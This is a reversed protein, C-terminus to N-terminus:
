GPITLRRGETLLRWTAIDGLMIDAARHAFRQLAAANRPASEWEKIMGTLRDAKQRSRNAVGEFDLIVRIGYSATAIAPLGATIATLGYKMEAALDPMALRLLLWGSAALLVMLFLFEGFREIRHSALHLRRANSDSWHAQNRLEFLLPAAASEPDSLDVSQLPSTRSFAEAYWGALDTQDSSEISRGIGVKNLLSCVRLLEAVERAELWREHWKKRGAAWVNYLLLLITIVEALVFLWKWQDALLSIAALVVALAAFSFNVTVASRFAQAAQVASQDWWVFAEHLANNTSQEQDNSEIKAGEIEQVPKVGAFKLLLPYVNHNVPSPAAEALRLWEPMQESQDERAICDLVLNPLSSLPHEPVDDLRMPGASKGGSRVAIQEGDPSIVIIPMARRAAEEAVERTGGRGRGPGGDWVVILMDCNDLLCLGAAEYARNRHDSKGDLILTADARDLLSEFEAFSDEGAFDKRYEMSEFPLIADLKFGAELASSAALRDAGEALASILRIDLRGRPYIEAAQASGLAEDLAQLVELLAIRVKQPNEIQHTRHGSIGVSFGLEPQPIPQKM